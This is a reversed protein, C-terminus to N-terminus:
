QLTVILRYFRKAPDVAPIDSLLNVSYTGDANQTLAGSPTLDGALTWTDLDTSTEVTYNLEGTLFRQRHSFSITGSDNSVIPEVQTNLDRGLAFALMNSLGTGGYEANPDTFGNDAMWQTFRVSSEILMAYDFSAELSQETETSAFVGGASFTTGAPLTQQFFTNLEGDIIASYLLQNGKKELRLTVIDDNIVPGISSVSSDGSPSVLVAAVNTGDKFAVGYRFPNGLVEAEVLLGAYFAGFQAKELKVETQLTWDSNPLARRIWPHVSDDLAPAAAGVLNAAIDVNAGFVLDSSGASQNHVEASFVNTGQILSSSVDIVLVNNEVVDEDELKDGQTNSDIVGEPLRVNGIEQGNLYYRVGDDVIHDISLQAGVPDDLFEFETRFYYTVLGNIFDRRLTGTQLGPAPLGTEGFGLYGPGSPWASDDYNPQAFIGTLEDNSEDYKWTSGFQIYNKPAPLTSELLGLPSHSAPINITLRGEHDQLSYHPASSANGHKEGKFNTWLPELEANGFTAFDSGGSVLISIVKSSTQASMDTASVTLTYNGPDTFSASAMMGDPTLTSGYDPTIAWTFDLPDGEPDFSPSGDLALMEGVEVRLSKPSSDVLIVPPANNTKTIIFQSTEVINGDHDVGEINLTNSGQKLTVGSLEWTTANTTPTIWKFSTGGMGAVRIKFVTPPSTGNLTIVDATTATNSTTVVFNTNAVGNTIFNRALTERNTFWSTYHSIPMTIGTGSVSDSEAQMWAQTRASGKTHEDLLKTMYYNMYQKVHPETFYTRVGTRNGIIAQTTREFVRDGDWHLLMWGNGEKPRFLYANKGRNVTITDWDADYGRVAANLALMNVDALRDLQHADYNDEDLVRLFETFTSFDHDSERTRMIWESQYATPNDTDKYSWDANRSSPRSTSNATDTTIRWEDDIRLLTGDSGGPFNRNLFDNSIPEHSERLKFGLTNIVTHTFEMENVPHGLQYLFYRAIRDDYFRPTNSGEATGSADIVSRRRGRFLRDGPLKWKGHDINANNARTFPSGSKRIEANYYIESENSIFTANYFRNSTKPYNYDYTASGGSSTTLAGRDYDSIIFRERLLQDPMARNDVIWMAPRDPGFRPQFTSASGAQAEVYFQIINGQATYNSVTASYLGTGNDTMTARIWTGNGNSNDRRYVLEVSTLAAASDIQASVSVSQGNTPVAPSHIVGTVTPAATVITQSNPAGPTGLNAPIPILFNTGYGHDLTQFIIRSKGNVWRADFNLTYSDDVVLATVDVEARNTKNDGHGDAILNLKGADMFSAWHTGQCVWGGASSDNPSMINPKQILNAGADDKRLTVNEIIVHSDGVLHAQLEQGSSLPLWTSRRFVDTYTFSQMTSKQSEDSDAWATSINNDMDPHRLEMSSGDGDALNPWDGEPLYDVEDVLNGNQDVIRLLEGGDRLGGSWNGIFSVGPYGESLYDVDAAIVLYSDSALTTGVPFNFSVGSSIKWNSLDVTETGRNYLEIFEGTGQDSPADYMIENIVISTQRASPNNAANQTHGPGGYFEEGVPFSQFSEEDLDRDFRAADIVTGSEALYLDLDGNLDPTLTVAVSFYGKSPVSGTLAVSEALSKNPSLIHGTLSVASDGPAYFEVWDTNGAGDFHVESIVLEKDLPTLAASGPTGGPLNSARWNRWEGNELNPNIRTLTHGTGDPAAPWKGGDNYDVSTMIVGNKNSLTLTEGSNSLSGTYPGYVRTAAPINPYAARLTAEDVPSVLITEFEKLIHADPSGANFDPFVYDIGDSFYWTGFDFPTGTNNTIEVFDPQGAQANYQIETFIVQEALASAALLLSGVSGLISHKM